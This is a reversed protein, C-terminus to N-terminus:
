NDHPNFDCYHHCLIVLELEKKLACNNKDTYDEPWVCVCVCILGIRLTWRVIQIDIWSVRAWPFWNRNRKRESQFGKENPFKSSLFWVCFSFHFQVSFYQNKEEAAATAAAAAEVARQAYTYTDLSLNTTSQSFFFLYWGLIVVERWDPPAACVSACSHPCSWLSRRRLTAKRRLVHTYVRKQDTHTGSICECWLINSLCLTHALCQGNLWQM